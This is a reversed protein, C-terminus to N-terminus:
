GSSMVEAAPLLGRNRMEMDYDAQKMTTTRDGNSMGERGKTQHLLRSLDGKLRRLNGNCDGCINLSCASCIFCEAFRDKRGCTRCAIPNYRQRNATMYRHKTLCQFQRNTLPRADLVTDAGVPTYWDRPFLAAGPHDTYRDDEPGTQSAARSENSRHDQTKPIVTDDSAVSGSASITRTLEPNSSSAPQPRPVQLSPPAAQESYNPRESAKSSARTPLTKDAAPERNVAPSSPLGVPARASLGPPNSPKPAGNAINSPVAKRLVSPKTDIHLDPSPTSLSSLIDDAIARKLDTKEDPSASPHPAAPLSKSDLSAAVVPRTADADEGSRLIKAKLRSSEQGM